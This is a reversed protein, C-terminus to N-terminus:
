DSAEKSVMADLWWEWCERCTIENCRAVVVDPPCHPLAVLEDILKDVMSLAAGLDREYRAARVMRLSGTHIQALLNRLESLTPPKQETMRTM